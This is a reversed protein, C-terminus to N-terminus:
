FMKIDSYKLIIGFFNANNLLALLKLLKVDYFNIRFIFEFEFFKFLKLFINTSCKTINFRYMHTLKCSCTIKNM